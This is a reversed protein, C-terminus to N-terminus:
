GIIQVDDCDSDYGVNVNERDPPVSIKPYTPCSSAKADAVSESDSDVLDIVLSSRRFDQNVSQGVVSLQTVLKDRCLPLSMEKVEGVKVRKSSSSSSRRPSDLLSTPPCPTCFKGRGASGDRSSSSSSSSSTYEVRRRGTSQLTSLFDSCNGSDTAPCCACMVKRRSPNSTDPLSGASSSSPAGGNKKELVTTTLVTVDSYLEEDDYLTHDTRDHCWKDDNLRREAANAALQRRDEATLSISPLAAGGLRQGSSGTRQSSQLRKAAADAAAKSTKGLITTVTGGLRHSKTLFALNSIGKKETGMAGASSEVEDYITDMLKYFEASHPGIAMHTLEHVMTGLIDHWPLFSDKDFGPRLRILISAGRNVNMGLLGANSPYFEKLCKVHWGRSTMVSSCVVVLRKLLSKAEDSRKMKVLAKTEGVNAM